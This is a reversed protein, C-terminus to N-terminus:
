VETHLPPFQKTGSVHRVVCIPYVEPEPAVAHSSLDVEGVGEKVGVGVGEGVGEDVSEIEGVGEDVSEIVGVGDKVGEGVEEGYQGLPM